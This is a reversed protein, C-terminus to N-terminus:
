SPRTEMLGTGSWHGLSTADLKGYRLSRWLEVMPLLRVDDFVLIRRRDELLPLVADRFRPEFRGDKPGDVFLLDAALLVDREAALTSPDTVDGLRQELRGSAFDEEKLVCGATERWPVLDYTVVRTRSSGQLMALASHGQFTGIEVVTAPQLTEVLATLLRYHEGPWRRVYNAYSSDCRAALDSLDVHQARGAAELLLATLSESAGSAEDPTVASWRAGVEKVPPRIVREVRSTWAPRSTQRRM